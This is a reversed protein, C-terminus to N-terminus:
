NAFVNNKDKELSLYKRRGITLYYFFYIFVILPVAVRIWVGYGNFAERPNPSIFNFIIFVFLLAYLVWFGKMGNKVQLYIVEGDAATIQYKNSYCWNIKCEVTQNIQSLEYEEVKGNEIKGVEEGDILVKFPRMRNIWENKRSLVLKM